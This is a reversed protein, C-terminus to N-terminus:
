WRRQNPYRGHEDRPSSQAPIDPRGPVADRLVRAFDLNTGIALVRAAVLAALRGAWKTPLDPARAAAEAQALRAGPDTFALTAGGRAPVGGTEQPELEVVM